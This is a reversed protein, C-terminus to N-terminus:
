RRWVRRRYGGAVVENGVGAPAEAADLYFGGSVAGASSVAYVGGGAAMRARNVGCCFDVEEDCVYNGAVDPIHDGDGFESGGGEADIGVSAFAAAEILGVAFGQCKRPARLDLRIGSTGHVVGQRESWAEGEAPLPLARLFRNKGASCWREHLASARTRLRQSQKQRQSQKKKKSEQKQKQSQKKAKKVRSKVRQPSPRGRGDMSRLEVGRVGCGLGKDNRGLKAKRLFPFRRSSGAKAGQLVM